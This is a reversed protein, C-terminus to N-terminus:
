SPIDVTSSLDAVAALAFQAIQDYTMTAGRGIAARYHSDGLQSPLTTIFQNYDALEHLPIAGLRALVGETVAGVLVAATESERDAALVVAGRAVCVALAPRDGNIHACELAERLANVAAPLHGEHALLQAQLALVRPLAFDYYGAAHVIQLYEEHAAKAGAPDSQWFALGFAYLGTARTPTNGIGRSIDLAVQAEQRALELDGFIAAM